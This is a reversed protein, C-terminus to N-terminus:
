FIGLPLFVSMGWPHLPLTAPPLRVPVLLLAWLISFVWYVRAGIAPAM